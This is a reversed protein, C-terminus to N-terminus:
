GIVIARLAVLANQVPAIEDKLREDSWRMSKALKEPVGLAVLKGQDGAVLARREDDNLEYDKLASGPDNIMLSIFAQDDIARQIVRELTAASM